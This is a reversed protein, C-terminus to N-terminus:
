ITNARLAEMVSLLLMSGGYDWPSYRPTPVSSTLALVSNRNNALMVRRDVAQVCAM